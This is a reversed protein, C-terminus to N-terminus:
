NFVPTPPPQDQQPLRVKPAKGYNWQFTLYTARVGFRRATIQELNDDGAKIRFKMTNFPDAFRVAVSMNDGDLKKRLTINTMQMQSFKGKEIKMPGRYFYNAQLIVTENLQTTANLRYSWAIANSGLASTSGGDTVMKFINLGGFANLKPGLRLSGNLDTGWSNSKDLNQFSVSTVERGDVTDATNIDVRIPNHTLRYFPSLQISGLQGSKSAGLEIADTYEPNLGPNGIFVNQQDFFVPFPNLEQTGPRRIRRSYSVKLQTQESPKYLIVGSPFLSHYNYPYNQANALAFNRNAFEARLGAQLDFKGVSQSLVGYGAHVQDDFSFKNSLNSLAWNGDGLADKYVVFDQDLWRDTEKVGSELKSKAWLPRTYDAQATLQRTLGSTNDTEGQFPAGASSGDPNQPERWLLMNNEDRSRNYRVETSLEHTRPQITHKWSLSNDWTLGRSKTNRDMVYRDLFAQSADLDEYGALAADNGHRRNLTLSNSLVDKESLKYDINGTFNHGGNKTRGDIDQNQFDLTSGSPDFRQRDNLGVIARDDANFGYTGFLTVPGQQYGANAGSNFRSATAFGTNVGGSLGLDTNAKLVINIIGAMGEPDYKASPNPIVEIREVINAPIQKLYAALQTGKIPTPRGNIQIAVNENGRLSVKGDADVEVSPTAQLVDSANSAAPAVDKARYTNRDPEITVTPKEGTIQVAQLTVSIRALKITGLNATPAAPDITFEPTNLPTFGVGSVRLYYTGPRLGQIRFTGDDAGYAGTVLKGDAKSRVAVAPRAVALGTSDAAVISGRVEGPAQPPQQAGPPPGAPNQAKVSVAALNLLLALLAFLIRKM